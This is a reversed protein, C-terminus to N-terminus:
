GYDHDDWTGHVGGPLAARQLFGKYGLSADTRMIRYEEKLLLPPANGRVPPYVADGIWFFADPDEREIADWVTIPPPPPPGAHSSSIDENGRDGGWWNSERNKKHRKHCSGFVIKKMTIDPFAIDAAPSGDGPHSSKLIM